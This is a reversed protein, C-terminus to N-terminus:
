RDMTHFLYKRRLALYLYMHTLVFIASLLNTPLVLKDQM